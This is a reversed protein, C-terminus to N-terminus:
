SHIFEDLSVLSRNEFMEDQGNRHLNPCVGVIEYLENSSPADKLANSVLHNITKYSQSYLNELDASFNKVYEISEKATMKDTYLVIRIPTPPKMPFLTRKEELPLLIHSCWVLPADTQRSGAKYLLDYDIDVAWEEWNERTLKRTLEDKEASRKIINNVIKTYAGGENSFRSKINAENVLWDMLAAKDRKIDGADVMAIGAVVYDEMTSPMAPSHISNSLVGATVQDRVPTDTEEFHYEAMCIWQQKKKIAAIIRTRGDRPIGDTGIVPPFFNTKWGNIEFDYAIDDSATTANQEARVGLNDLRPDDITWDGIFVFKWSKWTAKPFLTDRISGVPFNTDYDKLCVSEGMFERYLKNSM